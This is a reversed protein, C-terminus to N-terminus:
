VHEKCQPCLMIDTDVERGCCPSYMAAKRIIFPLSDGVIFDQSNVCYQYGDCEFSFDNCPADYTVEKAGISKLHLEQKKHYNNM